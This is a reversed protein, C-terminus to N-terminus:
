DEDPKLDDSVTIWANGNKCCQIKEIRRLGCAEVSINNTTGRWGHYHKVSSDMNGGIGEPSGGLRYYSFGTRIDEHRVLTFLQGVKPNHRYIDMETVIFRM